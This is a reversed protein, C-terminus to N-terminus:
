EHFLDFSMIAFSFLKHIFNMYINKAVLLLPHFIFKLLFSLILKLNLISFKFKAKYTYAHAFVNPRVHRM